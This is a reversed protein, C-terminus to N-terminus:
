SQTEVPQEWIVLGLCGNPSKPAHISGPRMVMISNPGYVGHETELEGQLIYILEFGRHRHPAASAGPMYRVLAASPGDPGTEATSYLRHVLANVRGDALLPTLAVPEEIVSGNSQEIYLKPLDIQQMTDEREARIM